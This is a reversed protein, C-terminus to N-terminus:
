GDGLRPLVIGFGTGRGPQSAVSIAGGMEVVIGNVIALGMGTGEGEPKTTFFPDFIREMTERDLGAGTDEITLEVYTGPQLGLAASEAEGDLERRRLGVTIRGDESGIAYSANACLNLVITQIQTRDAMVTGAPDDLRAEVRINSSLTPRLLDIAAEVAEQLNIPETKTPRDRSFTLIQRILDQSAEAAVLVQELRDRDESGEPLTELVLETYSVIPVLRNNFEHAVGGALEGLAEMRESRRAREEAARRVTEDTVSGAMRYARGDEDWLALGRILAWIESGDPRVLRCERSFFGEGAKFHASLAACYPALDEPRIFAQFEEATIRQVDTGLGLIQTLRPSLIIRDEAIDWDWIGDNTGAM